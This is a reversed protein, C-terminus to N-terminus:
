PVRIGITNGNEMGLMAYVSKNQKSTGEKSGFDHCFVICHKFQNDRMCTSGRGIYDIAM